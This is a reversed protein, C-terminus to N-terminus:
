VCEVLSADERFLSVLRAVREPGTMLRQADSAHGTLRRYPGYGVVLWGQPDQKWPDEDLLDDAWTPGM